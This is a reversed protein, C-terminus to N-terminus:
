ILISLDVGMSLATVLCLAKLFGRQNDELKDIRKKLANIRSSVEDNSQNILDKGKAAASVAIGVTATALTFKSFGSMFGRRNM